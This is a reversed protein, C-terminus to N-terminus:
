EKNEIQPPEEVLPMLISTVTNTKYEAGRFSYYIYFRNIRKGKGYDGSCYVSYEEPSQRMSKAIERQVPLLLRFRAISVSFADKEADFEGLIVTAARPFAYISYLEMKLEITRIMEKEKNLELEYDKTIKQTAREIGIIDEHTFRALEEVSKELGYKEIFLSEIRAEFEACTEFEDKELSDRFRELCTRREHQYNDIRKSIVAGFWRDTAKQKIQEPSELVTNIGACKIKTRNLEDLMSLMKAYEKEQYQKLVPISADSAFSNGTIDSILGRASRSDEETIKGHILTSLLVTGAVVATSAGIAGIMSGAKTLTRKPPMLIPINRKQISEDAICMLIDYATHGLCNKAGVNSFNRFELMVQSDNYGRGLVAYMLPTMGYQDICDKLTNQEKLKKFYEYNGDLAKTVWENM